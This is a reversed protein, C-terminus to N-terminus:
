ANIQDELELFKAAIREPDLPYRGDAIAATIDRVRQEDFSDTERIRTQLREVTKADRSIEVRDGQEARDKRQATEREAQQTDRTHQNLQSASINSIEIPM